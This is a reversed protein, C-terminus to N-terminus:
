CVYMYSNIIHSNADHFRNNEMICVYMHTIVTEQKYQFTFARFSISAM